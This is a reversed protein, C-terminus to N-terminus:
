LFRTERERCLHDGFCASEIRTDGDYPSCLRVGAALVKRVLRIASGFGCSGRTPEKKTLWETQLRAQFITANEHGCQSLGGIFPVVSIFMIKIYKLNMLLKGKERTYCLHLRTGAKGVGFYWQGCRHNRQQKQRAFRPAFNGSVAEIDVNQLDESDYKRWM